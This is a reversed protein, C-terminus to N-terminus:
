QRTAFMSSEQGVPTFVKVADMRIQQMQEAKALRVLNRLSERVFYQERADGSRALSTMLEEIVQETANM